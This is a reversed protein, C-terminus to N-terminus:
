PAFAIGRFATGTAPATVVTGVAVTGTLNNDDWRIVGATSTVLLTAAGGGAPRATLFFGGGSAVSFTAAQTWVTGDFTYKRAAITGSTAETVYLTDAGAVGTNLDLLAFNGPNVSNVGPFYTVASTSSQPLGSGIAFVRSLEIGGDPVAGSATSAYLQGNVIQVFRMNQIATFVETNAGTSGHVVYRVGGDAPASTGAGAVWYATGDVSAAARVSGLFTDLQTSTSVASTGLDVRGVVRLVGTTNVSAIGPVQAYGAAVGYSANTSLTLGGETTSTGAITLPVNSGASATPFPADSIMSGTALDRKELHLEASANSLAGGDAAPGVRLVYFQGTVTGGGGGTAGGGGGTTGGGGGTTGGGGGTTGGGGGTTGGGGGTTGGGGGTTGGGGGTTGGGGGTTGGGGGTAGGGGGTTGGGGGTAGGGGTTGGGGGTTGGGGGTSGGGGGTTGGGTGGGTAGGGTGGGTLGGGTGGGTTGGGGGTAGGGTGGGTSGGTCFGALCQQGLGCVMCTSAKTGCAMATPVAVCAGTADCCGSCNSPLCKPTPASCASMVLAAFAPIVLRLWKM